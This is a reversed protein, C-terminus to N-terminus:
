DNSTKLFAAKRSREVIKDIVDNSIRKARKLLTYESLLDTSFIGQDDTCIVMPVDASLFPYAPTQAYSAIRKEIRKNSSPCSEIVIGKTKLDSLVRTQIQAVKEFLHPMSAAISVGCPNISDHLRLHDCIERACSNTTARIHLPSFTNARVTSALSSYEPADEDVDSRLMMADFYDDLLSQQQVLEAPLLKAIMAKLSPGDILDVGFQAKMWVANDIFERDSCIFETGGGYYAKPNIGLAIAHGLRDGEEMRLFEVAEWIRRIGTILDSFVEGVHFTFGIPASLHLLCRETKKSEEKLYRYAPGFHEPPCKLESGGADIGCFRSVSDLDTKYLFDIVGRASELFEIKLNRKLNEERPKSFMGIFGYKLNHVEPDKWAALSSLAMHFKGINREISPMTKKTQLIFRLEAAAPYGRHLWSSIFEVHGELGDRLFFQGMTQRQKFAAFGSVQNSFVFFSRIREKLSLYLTFLAADDRDSQSLGSVSYKSFLATLLAREGAHPSSPMRGKLKNILECAYDRPLPGIPESLSLSRMKIHSAVIESDLKVAYDHMADKLSDLDERGQSRLSDFLYLRVAVAIICDRLLDDYNACTNWVDEFLKRKKLRFSEEGNNHLSVWNTIFQDASGGLHVHIDVAEHLEKKLRADNPALPADWDHKGKSRGGACVLVDEDVHELCQRWEVFSGVKVRLSRSHLCRGCFSNAETIFQQIADCYVSLTTSDGSLYDNIIISPDAFSLM